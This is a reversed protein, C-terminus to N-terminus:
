VTVVLNIVNEPIRPLSGETVYQVQPVGLQLSVMQRKGMESLIIHKSGHGLFFCCNEEEGGQSDREITARRLEKSLPESFIFCHIYVFSGHKGAIIPWELGFDVQVRKFLLDYVVMCAEITEYPKCSSPTGVQFCWLWHWM